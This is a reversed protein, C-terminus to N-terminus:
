DHPHQNSQQADNIIKTAITNWWADYDIASEYEEFKEQLFSNEYIFAYLYINFSNEIRYHMNLKDILKTKDWPPMSKWQYYFDTTLVCIKGWDERYTHLFDIFANNLVPIIQPINLKKLAQFNRATGNDSFINQQINEDLRGLDKNPTIAFIWACKRYFHMKTYNKIYAIYDKQKYMEAAKKDYSNELAHFFISSYKEINVKGRTIVSESKSPISEPLYLLYSQGDKVRKVEGAKEGFYLAFQIDDKSHSNKKYFETQKIGHLFELSKKIDQITLAYNTDFTYVYGFHWEHLTFFLRKFRDHDMQLLRDSLNDIVAWYKRSNETDKTLYIINQCLTEIAFHMQAFFEDEDTIELYTNIRAIAKEYIDIVLPEYEKVETMAYVQALIHKQYKKSPMDRDPAEGKSYVYEVLDSVEKKIEDSANIKPLIELKGTKFFDKLDNLISM